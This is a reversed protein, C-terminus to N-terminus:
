MTSAHPCHLAGHPPPVAELFTFQMLEAPSTITSALLQAPLERGVESCAHLVALHSPLMM